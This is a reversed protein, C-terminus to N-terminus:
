GGARMAKQAFREVLNPLTAPDGEFRVTVETLELSGGAIDVKESTLTATWDDGEVRDEGEVEADGPVHAGDGADTGGAVHEGESGDTGGAVHEGGLNELYRVALRQSIGRFSEEITTRESGGEPSANADCSGGAVPPFISLEDGDELVTDVGDMHVVGRGNRLVNIQPRLNGDELLDLDPYEAELERLVEGATAGDPFERDITKQGVAERFNAFFKLSLHM